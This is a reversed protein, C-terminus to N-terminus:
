CCSGSLRSVMADRKEVGNGLPKILGLGARIVVQARVIRHFFLFDLCAPVFSCLFHPRAGSADPVDRLLRAVCCRYDTQRTVAAGGKRLIVWYWGHFGGTSLILKLQLDAGPCIKLL